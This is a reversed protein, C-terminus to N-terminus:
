VFPSNPCSPISVGACIGTIHSSVISVTGPIENNLETVYKGSDGSMTVTNLELMGSNILSGPSYASSNGSFTTSGVYMYKGTNLIAGPGGYGGNGNVTSREVTMGDVNDIAGANGSTNNTFATGDFRAYGANYVAGAYSPESLTTGGSRVDGNGTLVSTYVYLSGWNAIAGAEAGINSSIVDHHLYMTGHNSIAAAGTSGIRCGDTLTLWDIEVEAHSDLLCQVGGGSISVSGDPLGIVRMNVAPVLPGQVLTIIQGRLAASFTITANPAANAIGWRLTGPSNDDAASTVTYDGYAMKAPSAHAFSAPAMTAILLLLAALATTCTNNM